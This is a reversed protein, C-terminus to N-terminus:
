RMKTLQFDIKYAYFEINTTVSLARILRNDANLGIIVGKVQQYDEALEEKVFGMYRQIQGIVVDSARGKKLEIVLWTKGDKSKALIDMSGTDSPYQQGILEGCEEYIRYDKGIPTYQWNKILFEELHKEMAFEAADEVDPNPCIIINTNTTVLNEIEEAFQSVDCCTGISSLSHKLQESMRERSVKVSNWEVKRRHPLNTNPAYYYGGSVRGVHYEGQGDPTIVIDDIELGRCVTWLMGCALGAGIKSGEPHSSLYVPIYRANFQRSTDSLRDSLDENIGFDVGIYGGAICEKVFASGKGLMVRNYKKM